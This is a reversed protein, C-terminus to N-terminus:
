VDLIAVLKEKVQHVGMVEQVQVQLVLCKFKAIDM